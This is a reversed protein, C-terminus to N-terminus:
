PKNTEYKLAAVDKKMKEISDDDLTLRKETSALTRTKLTPEKPMKPTDSFILTIQEELLQDTVHQAPISM